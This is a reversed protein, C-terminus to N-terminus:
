ILDWITKRIINQVKEIPATNDIEHVSVGPLEWKDMVAKRSQILKKPPGDMVEDRELIRQLNVELPVSLKFVIDPKSISSYITKEISALLRKIPSRNTFFSPDVRRGDMGCIGTSPFRDSIIIEERNALRRAKNILNRQDFAIMISRILYFYSYHSKQKEQLNSDHSKFEIYNTRQSPLLKRFVPLFLRPFFTLWTAPPKGSHINTVSVFKDLWKGTKSIHTSKGSGDVGVFAIFSGGSLFHFAPKRVIFKQYLVHFFKKWTLFKNKTPSNIAYGSFVQRLKKSLSLWQLFHPKFQLALICEDFLAASLEPLFRPLLEKAQTATSSDFLWQFEKNINEAERFTFLYDPMSGCELLKRIVFVFLESSRDPIKIGEYEKSSELLLQALLPLHYNKILNGGTFLQFYIHLHVIGGSEIDLGYYHHVSPTQEWKPSIISKFEFESLTEQFVRQSKESVLIDLDGEGELFLKIKHNSKWHCYQIQRSNLAEFFKKILPITTM